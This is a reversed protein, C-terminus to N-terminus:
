NASYFWCTPRVGVTDRAAYCSGVKYDTDSVAENVSSACTFGAYYTDLRCQTGPHNDDMKTVKHTDPTSFKPPTTENRLAQFLYAVSEGAMSIRQCILQDAETTFQKECTAKVLPDITVNALIAKNDDQAFFRRLCKLGAFYDAGGENTAWTSFWGSIKPAGGIHHGMEHCAVLAMGEVNITQHRALGGYMNLVWTNGQRSASANVTADSWMHNIKLTGGARAVEGKYIDDVRNLVADFQEQTIGGATFMGVPIRLNNAPVFGACLTKEDGVSKFGMLGFVLLSLASVKLIGRVSIRTSSM